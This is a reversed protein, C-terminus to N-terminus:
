VSLRSISNKERSFEKRPSQRKQGFYHFFSWTLFKPRFKKNDSDIWFTEFQFNRFQFFKGRTLTKEQSQRKEALIM